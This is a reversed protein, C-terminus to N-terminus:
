SEISPRLAARPDRCVAFLDLARDFDRTLEFGRATVTRLVARIWIPLAPYPTRVLRHQVPEGLMRDLWRLRAGHAVGALRVESFRHGLLSALEGPDFEHVHFPNIRAPFTLRNPTSLVLTGDPHLIRACRRLFADADPLHELVQLCVIGDVRGLPPHSLDGRVFHAVPYRTRARTLTPGDLDLGVVRKVGRALIAAGYGEGCGADVVTGEVHAAALRYAAVHRRFWYNESAIGPATREGTLSPERSM